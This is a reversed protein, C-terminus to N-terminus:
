NFQVSFWIKLLTNFRHFVISQAHFSCLPSPAILFHPRSSALLFLSFAALHLLTNTHTSTHTALHSWRTAVLWLFLHLDCSWGNGRLHHNSKAHPHFSFPGLSLSPTLSTSPPHTLSCSPLLSLPVLCSLPRAVCACLLSLLDAM